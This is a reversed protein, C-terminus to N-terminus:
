SSSVSQLHTWSFISPPLLHSLLSFLASQSFVTIIDGETFGFDLGGVFIYASEKYKDHWSAESGALGRSLERENIRNIEQVVNM